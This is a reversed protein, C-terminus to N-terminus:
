AGGALVREIFAECRRQAPRECLGDWYAEFEPRRPLTGFHMGWGIHSGVYVDAASFADGAIFPKGAVAGALTDVLTYYDGCGLRMAQEPSPTVGLDNLAIASELPGAALFLWRYYDGRAAPPPALGAEPYADALYACIAAAETVVTDGHRIAPVKGLPNIALYEPSKMASGYELTVTRYNIGLEELMWHVIGGRSLPNTYFVLADATAQPSAGEGQGVVQPEQLASPPLVVESPLLYGQGLENVVEVGVARLVAVEQYLTRLSIGLAEALAPGPMPEQRHRLLRILTQLRTSRTM